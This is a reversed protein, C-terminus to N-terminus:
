ITWDEWSLGTIQSFDSTNATVVTLGRRLAQGASDSYMRDARQGATLLGVAGALGRQQADDDAQFGESM